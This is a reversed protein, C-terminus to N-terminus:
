HEEMRTMMLAENIDDIVAARHMTNKEFVCLLKIKLIVDQKELVQSTRSDLENRQSM